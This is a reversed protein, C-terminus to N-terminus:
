ISGRGRNLHYHTNKEFNTKNIHQIASILKNINSCGKSEQSVDWKTMTYSGKLTSNFEVQVKINLVIVEVFKKKRKKMYVQM